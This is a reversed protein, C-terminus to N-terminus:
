TGWINANILLNLTGDLSTLYMKNKLSVYREKFYMANGKLVNYLNICLAM